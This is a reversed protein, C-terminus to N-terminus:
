TLGYTTDTTFKIYTRLLKQKHLLPYTYLIYKENVRLKNFCKVIHQM